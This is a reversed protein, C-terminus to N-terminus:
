STRQVPIVVVRGTLETAPQAMVAVTREPLRLVTHFAKLLQDGVELAAAARTFNWSGRWGRDRGGL